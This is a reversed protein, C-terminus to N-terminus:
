QSVTSPLNWIQQFVFLCTTLYVHVAAVCLYVYKSPDDLWFQTQSDGDFDPVLRAHDQISTVHVVQYASLLATSMLRYRQTSSHMRVHRPVVVVVVRCFCITFFWAYHLCFVHLHILWGLFVTCEGNSRSVHGDMAIMMGVPVLRGHARVCVSRACLLVVCYCLCVRTLVLVFVSFVFSM